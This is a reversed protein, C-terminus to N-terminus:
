ESMRNHSLGPFARLMVSQRSESIFERCLDCSKAELACQTVPVSSSGFRVILWRSLEKGLRVNPCRSRDKSLGPIPCDPVCIGWIACQTIPVTTQEIAFQTLPVSRQGVGSQPMPLSFQGVACHTLRVSRQGLPIASLSPESPTADKFPSAYATRRDPLWCTSYSQRVRFRGPM